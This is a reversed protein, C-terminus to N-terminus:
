ETISISLCAVSRNNISGEDVSQTDAREINVSGELFRLRGSGPQPEYPETQAAAAQTDYQEEAAAIPPTSLPLAALPLLIACLLYRTHFRIRVTKSRGASGTASHRKM